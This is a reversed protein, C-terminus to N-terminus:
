LHLRPARRVSLTPVPRSAHIIASAQRTPAQEVRWRRLKEVCKTMNSAEKSMQFGRFWRQQFEIYQPVLPVSADKFAPTPLKLATVNQFPIRTSMRLSFGASLAGIQEHFYTLFTKSSWRGVKTITAEDEGNLKLATAASARLFHSGIRQPSYAQSYLGTAYAAATVIESAIVHKGPSLYSLPTSEPMAMLRIAHVPCFGDATNTSSHHISQGRKGSKQNDITLTAGDAQLLQQLTATTPLLRGALWFRVDQCRFQQTRTVRSAPPFTYEGVRLLYFFAITILDSVTKNKPTATPCITASAAHAITAVPLALQPNTAPDELKYRSLIRQFPLDLEELGNSRRADEYGALLHIQAVSRLAKEVTQSGVQKDKEYTGSRVRAAFGLLLQQQVERSCHRLYPDRRCESAYQQWWAWRAARASDDV